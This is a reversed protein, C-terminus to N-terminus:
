KTSYIHKISTKEALVENSIPKKEKTLVDIINFLNLLTSEGGRLNESLRITIYRKENKTLSKILLTLGDM